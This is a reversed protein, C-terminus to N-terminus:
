KISRRHREMGCGLCGKPAAAAGSLVNQIGAMWRRSRSERGSAKFFSIGPARVSAAASVKVQTDTMEIQREANACALRKATSRDFKEDAIRQKEEECELRELRLATVYCGQMLICQDYIFFSLYLINLILFFILPLLFSSEVTMSAQFCGAAKVSNIKKEVEM